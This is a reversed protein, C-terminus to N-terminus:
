AEGKKVPQRIVIARNNRTLLKHAVSQVAEPTVEMFGSLVTNVLEPDNDFLTFCALLHMLGYRPISGGGELMSFYNSRFKVKIPELEEPTIVIQKMEELIEDYAAITQDASYEPKHM